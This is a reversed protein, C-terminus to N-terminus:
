TECKEASCEVNELVENITDNGDMQPISENTDASKLHSEKAKGVKVLYIVNMVNSNRKQHRLLGVIHLLMCVVQQLLGVAHRFLCVIQQLLGVAHQLIYVVHRLLGM